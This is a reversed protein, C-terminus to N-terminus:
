KKKSMTEIYSRLSKVQDRDGLVVLRKVDSLAHDRAPNFLTNGDSGEVAVILAGLSYDRDCLDELTCTLERNSPVDIHHFSVALDTQGLTADVVESILPNNLGLALRRGGIRQPSIALNAGATELKRYTDDAKYRSVIKLDPNLSRATLVVFVNDADETLASALGKARDIGAQELIEDKRADGVLFVSGEPMDVDCEQMDIVVMPHGRENLEEIISRGTTGVGCVIFHDSLKDIMKQKNRGKFVELLTEEFLLNAILAVSIGSCVVGLLIATVNFLRGQESLPFIEQYGVTTVSIIAMYFADFFSADEIYHFGLTAYLVTGLLLLLVIGLQMIVKHRFHNKKTASM